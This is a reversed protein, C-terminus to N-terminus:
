SVRSGNLALSFEDGTTSDPIFDYRSLKERLHILAYGGRAFRHVQEVQSTGIVWTHGDDEPRVYADKSRVARGATSLGTVGAALRGSGYGLSSVLVILSLLFRIRGIFLLPKM